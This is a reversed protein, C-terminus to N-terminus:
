QREDSVGGSLNHTAFFRQLPPDNELAHDGRQSGWSYAMDFVPDPVLRQWERVIEEEQAPTPMVYRGHEDDRWQGGGFAQYIPVMHSSPIGAAEAAVVFREVENFDCGNWESRCPYPCTGFLDIHTAEPRYTGGYFPQRATGLNLLVIFTRTGPM